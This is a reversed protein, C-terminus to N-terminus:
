NSHKDAKEAAKEAKRNMKQERREEKVAQKGARVEARDAHREDRIKHRMDRVGHGIESPHLGLEKAIKGWGMKSDKRMAVVEDLTKGSKQAMSAVIFMQPYNLGKAKLSNIQEDTLSYTEKLATTWEPRDKIAAAETEEQAVPDEEAWVLSTPVTLAACLGALLYFRYAKM